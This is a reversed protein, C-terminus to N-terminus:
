KNKTMELHFNIDAILAFLLLINLIDLSLGEFQFSVRFDCWMISILWTTGSKFKSVIVFAPFQIRTARAVMRAAIM